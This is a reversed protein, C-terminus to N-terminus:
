GKLKAREVSLLGDRLSYETTHIRKVKFVEAVEDLLVAGGLIIDVRKAEIGPVELLEKLTMRSIKTIIQELSDKEVTSSKDGYNKALRTLARVTGSAGIVKKVSPWGGRVITSSLSSRIHHRLENLPHPLDEREQKPPHTKLYVQQLRLTGLNFSTAHFISEGLTVIIETSGGGIDVIAVPGDGVDENELVGRAILAAEEDGSIVRLEIGTQNFVAQVFDERNRADRLASTGVAIYREVELDTGLKKFKSFVEIARASAETTIHHTTFVADGLRILERERLLRQPKDDYGLEYVDFRVSNTGLDILGVRM